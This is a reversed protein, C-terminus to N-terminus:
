FLLLFAFNVAVAILGALILLRLNTVTFLLSLIFVNFRQEPSANGQKIRLQSHSLRGVPRNKYYSAMLCSLLGNGVAVALVSLSLITKWHPHIVSSM